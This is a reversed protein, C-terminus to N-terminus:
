TMVMAPGACRSVTVSPAPRRSLAPDSARGGVVGGGATGGHGPGVPSRALQHHYWGNWGWGGGDLLQYTTFNTLLALPPATPSSGRRRRTAEEDLGHPSRTM